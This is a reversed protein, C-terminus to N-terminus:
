ICKKSINSTKRKTIPTMHIYTLNILVWVKRYPKGESVKASFMCSASPFDKRQIDIEDIRFQALGELASWLLKESKAAGRVHFADPIQTMVQDLALLM